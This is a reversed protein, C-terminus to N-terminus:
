IPRYVMLVLIVGPGILESWHALRVTPDDLAM